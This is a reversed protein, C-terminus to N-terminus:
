AIDFSHGYIVESALVTAALADLTHLSDLVIIDIFQQHCRGMM